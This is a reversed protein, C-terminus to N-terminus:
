VLNQKISFQSHCDNVSTNTHNNKAEYRKEILLPIQALRRERVNVLLHESITYPSQKLNKAYSIKPLERGRHSMFKVTMSRSFNSIKIFLLM